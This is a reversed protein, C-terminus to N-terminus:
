FESRLSNCFFSCFAMSLCALTRVELEQGWSLGSNNVLIDLRDELKAIKAALEDCGAKNTLNSTIPICANPRHANLRARDHM